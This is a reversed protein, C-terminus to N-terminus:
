CRGPSWALPDLTADIQRAPINDRRSAMGKAILELAEAEPLEAIEGPRAVLGSPKALVTRLMVKM